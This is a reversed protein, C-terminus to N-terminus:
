KRSDSSLVKRPALGSEAFRVELQPHRTDVPDWDRSFWAIRGEEETRLILGHNGAPDRMWGKVADLVDIDIRGEEVPRFRVTAVPKEEYDIGPRPGSGTEGDGWKERRSTNRYDWSLQWFQLPKLLRHVTLTRPRTEDTWLVTLTLTAGAPGRDAPLGELDFRIFTCAEEKGGGVELSPHSQRIPRLMVSPYERSVTATSCGRYGDLHPKLLFVSRNPDPPPTPRPM